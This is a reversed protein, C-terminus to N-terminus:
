VIEWRAVGTNYHIATSSAQPALVHQLRFKLWWPARFDVWMLFSRRVGPGELYPRIEEYYPTKDTTLQGPNVLFAGLLGHLSYLSALRSFSMWLYYDGALSFRRLAAFDISAHLRRNWFTSEQQVWPQRPRPSCYGGCPFFEREYRTPKWAAIWQGLDNCLASYGTVWEVGPLAFAEQLIAFAEPHYLDGANLYSFIDGKSDAFSEGLADYLGRDPATEVVVGQAALRARCEPDPDPDCTRVRYDLEATGDRVASQGTISAATRLVRNDLTRCATLVSFKM